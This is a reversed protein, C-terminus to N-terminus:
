IKKRESYQVDDYIEGPNPKPENACIYEPNPVIKYHACYNEARWLAPM